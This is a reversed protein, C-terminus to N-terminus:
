KPLWRINAEGSSTASFNADSFKWLNKAADYACVHGEIWSQQEEMFAKAEILLSNDLIFNKGNQTGASGSSFVSGLRIWEDATRDDYNEDDFIALDLFPEFTYSM